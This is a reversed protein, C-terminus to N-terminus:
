ESIRALLSFVSEVYSLTYSNAKPHLFPSSYELSILIYKIIVISSLFTNFIQEKNIFYLKNLIFICFCYHLCLLHYGILHYIYIETNYM